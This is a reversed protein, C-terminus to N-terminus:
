IKLLSAAERKKQDVIKAYVQTTKIEKHGLMKQVTFLDVGKTLLMTAYTHRACHFTITKSIGARMMWQQLRMNHWASYKLGEFVRSDNAGRDNLFSLAQESIPLTEEGKTKKQKFRIFWGLDDSYQIESWTLKQIDSWRLGTFSSFLFAQKLIPIDCDAEIVMKFEEITLFERKPDASKIGEVNESPNRIIIEDKVAQKLAAKIKNFYSSQSNQSLVTSSKTKAETILYEKFGEVWKKDVQEFSVDGNVYSKVHKIASAWNGYNGPSADRKDRLQELYEIFSAKQKTLNAFGFAGSYIELQRQNRVNEAIELVTKNHEKQSKTIKGEEPEPYLYLKLYEYTRNGKDYYDLYLSIKKGKKRKRLTVKM